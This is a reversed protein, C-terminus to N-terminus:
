EQFAGDQRGAVQQLVEHEQQAPVDVVEGLEQVVGAPRGREGVGQALAPAQGGGDGGESCV